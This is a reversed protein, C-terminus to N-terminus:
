RGGEAEGIPAVELGRAEIEALVRPLLELLLSGGARGRRGEHLLVIAGPELRRGIRRVIREGDDDRGDYGRASWAVLRLGLRDLLPHVFPNRMGAPSRFLRPPAGGLVTALAESAGEIERKLRQPGLRWFSRAPHTQTHNGVGHGRRSIERVLEPNREAREGILFFTARAGRRELLDMAARTADGDPGDDITLWVGRAPEDLRTQVAGWWRCRPMLTAWLTLMHVAFMAGFAWGSFGTAGWAVPALGNAALLLARM